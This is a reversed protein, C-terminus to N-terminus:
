TVCARMERDTFSEKLKALTQNRQMQDVRLNFGSENQWDEVGLLLM